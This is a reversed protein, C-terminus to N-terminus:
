RVCIIEVRRNQSMGEATNNTARPKREGYGVSQSVQKGAERVIAAVANARRQSLRLNYADSVRADTYGAISFVTAKSSRFFNLLRARGRADIRQQDTAFFQDTNLTGCTPGQRCVPLGEPTLHPSMYGEADNDMIWHECGDPDVWITPVYREAQAAASSGLDCIYGAGFIVIRGELRNIM